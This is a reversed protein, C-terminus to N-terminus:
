GHWPERQREIQDGPPLQPLALVVGSLLWFYANPVYNQFWALSVAFHLFLLSVIWGLLVLGVSASVDGRLRRLGGWQRATWSMSWALWLVLGVLGWEVALSAYGGEVEYDALEPGEGDYLYQLGLSETGTGQGFVGGVGVGHVVATSYSDWRFSWESTELRPDLTTRYWSVRSALEDPTLTGLAVVSLVTIGVAVGVAPLVRRRGSWRTALIALSTLVLAVLFASRQGSALVAVGNVVAFLLAVWRRRGKVLLVAALSIAFAVLAMSAFRSPDVFTGTPRYVPGTLANGRILVLHDLGRVPGSPALLGPGVLTQVLGIGSSLAGLASLGVLWRELRIRESAILAGAMVLPVYLFDLRLGVLPLRVDVLASPVSMVVAWAGVAYLAWRTWGTTSRWLRRAGPSSAVSAVTILLLLDKVFYVTLDNGAIKRVLDEVVLWGLLCGLAWPWRRVLLPVAALAATGVVLAVVPLDSLVSFPANLGGLARHGGALGLGVAAALLLGAGLVLTAIRGRIM